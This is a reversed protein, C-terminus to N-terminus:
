HRIGNFYRPQALSDARIYSRPYKGWGMVRLRWTLVFHDDPNHFGLEATFGRRKFEEFSDSLRTDTALSHYFSAGAQKM